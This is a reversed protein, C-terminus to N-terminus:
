EEEDIDYAELRISMVVYGEPIGEPFDDHGLMYTVTAYAITPQGCISDVPLGNDNVRILRLTDGVKFDRDNKRIEYTKIKNKVADFYRDNLKLNHETM